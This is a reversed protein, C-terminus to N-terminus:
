CANESKCHISFVM